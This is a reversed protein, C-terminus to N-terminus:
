GETPKPSPASDPDSELTSTPQPLVADEIPVQLEVEKPFVKKRSIWWRRVIISSLVLTLVAVVVGAISLIITLLKRVEFNSNHKPCLGPDPNSQSCADEIAATGGALCSPHSSFFSRAYSVSCSSFTTDASSAPAMIFGSRPCQNGTGDHQMGLTHGIEHAVIVANRVLDYKLETIVGSNSSCLSGVGSLGLISSEFQLKSFLVAIDHRPLSAYLRNRYANFLSLLGDPGMVKVGSAVTPHQYPDSRVFTMQGAFSLQVGFSSSRYLQAVFNFISSTDAEVRSGLSQYRANDNIILVRLTRTTSLLKSLRNSTGQVVNAYDEHELKQVGCNFWDEGLEQYHYVVHPAIEPFEENESQLQKSAISPHTSNGQSGRLPEIVLVLGQTMILGMLGNCTNLAVTSEPDGRVQGQYYCSHSIESKVSSTAEGEGVRIERYGQSFLSSEELDLYFDRGLARFAYSIDGATVVSTALGKFISGREGLKPYVVDYEQIKQLDVGLGLVSLALLSLFRM